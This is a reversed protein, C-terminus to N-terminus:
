NKLTKYIRFITIYLGPFIFLLFFLTKHITRKLPIIESKVFYLAEFFRSQEIVKNAIVLLEHNMRNELLKTFGCLEDRLYFSHFVEYSHFWKKSYVGTASNIYDIYALIEYDFLLVDKASMLCDIVFKQDEGYSFSEDFNIGSELLFSRKYVCSCVSVRKILDGSIYKTLIQAINAIPPIDSNSVSQFCNYKYHEKFRLYEFIFLSCGEYSRIQNLIETIVDNLLADDSDIFMIYKGIASGLGVNRASSVGSNVKTLIRFNVNMKSLSSNIVEKTDDISGDDVFIIEVNSLNQNKLSQLFLSIKDRSNYFPVIISISINLNNMFCQQVISGDSNFTM